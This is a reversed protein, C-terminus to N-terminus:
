GIAFWGTNATGSQKVYFSTGVGGNLNHYTSGPPATVVGQPSGRGIANLCGTAEADTTFRLNGTGNPHIQVDGNSVSRLSAGGAGDPALYDATNFYSARWTGWTGIWEVDAATPVNLDTYTWNEQLPSSGTRSFRVATNCRVVLRREESVPLGCWGTATAGTGNGTVTVTVQTGTPGYGSGSSTVSVGILTGRALIATATAGTGTGTISITATTYGSGGATVRIFTIGGASQAQHMGVMSQVGSPATTVMVSDAIDPVLLTQLGGVSIPNIVFRQSLNWRNGDIIVSDTNAWLTNALQAGNTGVFSNRAVMVNQPGDRLLIGGAAVSSMGIWNGSLSLINAAQGFNTGDSDTEVNNAVLSWSSCDQIFNDDVRVNVGGGCNIGFSSGQVFNATIDANLSGGCDIGYLGTGTVMNSAVRSYSINALIGAGANTVTGNNSLLNDQVLLARGSVAIGYVTNDHCINGSVVIAIADPNANGWTPPTLNTANYNGVAIGRQNNWCRNGSVQAMHVKQGFTADNYDLCLGYQGNDHARCGEVLIGECAQVWLGNTANFAFTCDRISHQCLTPDNALYSLGHGLVPGFANIFDCRHFDTTTCSSAVLVSWSDVGIASKNADFIVGDAHFSSGQLLIWAGSGAQTSRKLTSLGPTGILAATATTVTFQGKIAYVKPGLRVPRGSAFAANLSATDDTVGDGAAGFDEIAVASAFHDALSRATTGGTATALTSSVNVGSVSSLGAMFQSYPLAVSAGSQSMAVLDAGSPANAAPLGGVSFPTATASLNGNSLTLNAGVTIAEPAGTGTSIRGLLQGSTLALTPQLGATVQAVTAKRLTGSQSIPLEDTSAAATAATLDDVTPM